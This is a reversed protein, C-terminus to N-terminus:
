NVNPANLLRTAEIATEGWSESDPHYSLNIFRAMVGTAENQWHSMGQIEARAARLLAAAEREAIHPALQSLYENIRDHVGLGANSRSRAFAHNTKQEVTM